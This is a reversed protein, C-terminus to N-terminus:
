RSMVKNLGEYIRGLVLMAAQISDTQEELEEATVPFAQAVIKWSKDGLLAVRYELEDATAGHPEAVDM